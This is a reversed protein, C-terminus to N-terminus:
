RCQYLLFKTSNLGIVLDKYHYGEFHEPGLEARGRGVVTKPKVGPLHSIIDIRGPGGGRVLVREKPKQAM